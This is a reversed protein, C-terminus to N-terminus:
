YITHWNPWNELIYRTGYSASVYIGFSALQPKLNSHETAVNTELDFRKWDGTTVCACISLLVKYLITIVIHIKNLRVNYSHHM